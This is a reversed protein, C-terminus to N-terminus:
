HCSVSPHPTSCSTREAEEWTGGLARDKGGPSSREQRGFIRGLSAEAGGEQNDPHGGGKIELARLGRRLSSNSTGLTGSDQPCGGKSLNVTCLHLRAGPPGVTRGGWQGEQGMCPIRRSNQPVPQQFTPHGPIPHRVSGWLLKMWLNVSSVPSHTLSGDHPPLPTFNM